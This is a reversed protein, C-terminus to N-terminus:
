VPRMRVTFNLLYRPLPGDPFWSPGQIDDSVM